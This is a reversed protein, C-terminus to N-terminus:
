KVVEHEKPILKPNTQETKTKISMNAWSNAWVLFSTPAFNIRFLYMVQAFKNLVQTSIAPRQEETKPKGFPHSNGFM